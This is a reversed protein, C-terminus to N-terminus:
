ASSLLASNCVQNNQNSNCNIDAKINIKISENTLEYDFQSNSLIGTKEIDDILQKLQEQPSLTSKGLTLHSVANHMAKLSNHRYIATTDAKKHGVQRQVDILNAENNLLDTIFSHRLSHVTCKKDIGALTLRYKFVKNIAPQGPPKNGSRKTFLYDTRLTKLYVELISALAPHMSVRRPDTKSVEFIISRTTFDIHKKQLAAVEGSRAGSYSMITFLVGYPDPPPSVNILMQIEGDTLIQKVIPKEPIKKLEETWRWGKYKGWAKLAKIYKNVGAASIEDLKDSLFSLWTDKDDVVGIRHFAANLAIYYNSITTKGRGTTSLFVRFGPEIM